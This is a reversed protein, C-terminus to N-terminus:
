INPVTVVQDGGFNPPKACAAQQLRQGSITLIWDSGLVRYCGDPAQVAEGALRDGAQVEYLGTHTSDRPLDIILHESIRRIATFHADTLPAPPMATHTNESM